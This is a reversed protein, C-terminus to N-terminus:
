LPRGYSSEQRTVTVTCAFCKTVHLQEGREPQAADLESGALESGTLESGVLKMVGAGGSRLEEGAVWCARV